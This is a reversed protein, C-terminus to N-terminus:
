PMGKIMEIVLSTCRDISQSLWQTHDELMSENALDSIARILVFPIENMWCVTAVAAGEMEVCDGRFTEWLRQKQSQKAIIQDGTLVTGLHVKNTLGIRDSAKLAQEVLNSDSKYWHAGQQDCDQSGTINFDHEIVKNAIVIDGQCMDPNTAGAVGMFLLSSIDYHDLLYQTRAAARVKGMGSTAVVVKQKSLTGCYFTRRMRHQTDEIVLNELLAQTIEFPVASM